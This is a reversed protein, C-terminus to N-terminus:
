IVVYAFLFLQIIRRTNAKDMYVVHVRLMEKPM